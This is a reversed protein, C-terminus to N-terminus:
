SGLAMWTLPLYRFSFLRQSYINNMSQMAISYIHQQDFGEVGKRESEVEDVVRSRAARATGLEVNDRAEQLRQVARVRTGPRAVWGESGLWGANM